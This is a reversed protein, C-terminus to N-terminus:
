TAVKERPAPTPQAGAHERMWRQLNEADRTVSRSAGFLTGALLLTIAPLLLMATQIGDDRYPELAKNRADRDLGDLSVGDLVAARQTFHESVMGTVPPGFAGGFLYMFCFYIAMATARLSPEIVDQITSYVTAYYVYLLMCGFGFLMSFVFWHGAPVAVIFCPVALAISVAAVLLRGNRRRRFVADGLLGGLLMGPVGALGYVFSSIYGAAAVDAEHVRSMFPPLFSGITYMVFNHLAGSPILWLMTPISLVLLYPNGDRRSAGIDHDETAGRAPEKLMMAGIACLLGPILAVFFAARWGFHKALMGSFILALALGIPLGLMFLSMARARSKAPFLDGILSNAAPACSAEGVGVSLRLAVMQWFNQALGSAATLISWGTVGITLIRTRKSRDAWRGLPVGVLAYLIIFATALWGLDTDSLNWEKRIEEGVAGPIQRDYFNLLNIAFLVTLAFGIKGKTM